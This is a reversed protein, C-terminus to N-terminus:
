ISYTFLSIIGFAISLYFTGRSFHLLAELNFIIALLMILVGAVQLLMKIKGWINAETKDGNHHKVLAAIIIIAELIIIAWAAYFDVYRVVVVYVVSAILIKDALPDYIKGWETVMNRVRALSGDLADTFATFIFAIAGAVYREQWLLILVLPTLFFRLATLHNPKVSKPIFPLFVKALIKDTWYLKPLPEM